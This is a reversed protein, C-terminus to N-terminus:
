HSGCILILAWYLIKTNFHGNEVDHIEYHKWEEKYIYENGQNDDCKLFLTFGFQLATLNIFILHTGICM